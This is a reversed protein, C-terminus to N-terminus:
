GIEPDIDNENEVCEESLCEISNNSWHYNNKGFPDKYKEFM